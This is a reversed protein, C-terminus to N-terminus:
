EPCNCKRFLFAMYVSIGSLKESTIYSINKKTVYRYKVGIDLRFLKGISIQTYLSPELLPFFKFEQSKYKPVFEKFGIGLATMLNTGLLIKKGPYIIYGLELGGYGFKFFNYVGQTTSELEVSKAMTWGGGGITFRNHITVAGRGGTMVTFQNNVQTSLVSVGVFIPPTIKFTKRKATETQAVINTSVLVFVALM